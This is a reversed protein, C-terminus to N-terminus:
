PIFLCKEAAAAASTASTASAPQPDDWGPETGDDLAGDVAGDAATVALVEAAAALPGGAEAGGPVSAAPEM